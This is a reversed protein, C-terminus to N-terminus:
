VDPHITSVEHLLSIVPGVGEHSGCARQSAGDAQDKYSLNQLLQSPNLECIMQSSIGIERCTVQSQSEGLSSSWSPESPSGEWPYGGATDQPKLNM